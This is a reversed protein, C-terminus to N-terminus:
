GATALQRAAAEPAARLVRLNEPTVEAMKVSCGPSLIMGTGGAAVISRCATEAIVAASKTNMAVPDVGGAVAKGTIHRGAVLDPNDPGHDNWHITAVPYDAFPTLDVGSECVHLINFPLEAAPAMMALDHPACLKRYDNAALRGASTWKTSYFVGDVGMDVLKQVFPAFTEAFVELAHTIAEPAERIHAALLNPQRDVLKEAIDLPTFVTMIIPVDAPVAQRMVALATLQEALAPADLGVPRLQLWDEPAAIPSHTCVHGVAVSTAPAYAFGFPEVHYSARAHVKLFDWDYEQQFAAMRDAFRQPAMEDLFFHGWASVPVQDVARGALAAAIRDHKNM